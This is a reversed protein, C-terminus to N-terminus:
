FRQVGDPGPAKRNSIKKLIKKLKEQQGNMDKKIKRLWTADKNHEEQGWIDTWFIKAEQADPLVNPTEERGESGDIQKYFRGESNRFLRNQQFQSVRQHCRNIKATKGKIKQLIEEKVKPKGKEKLKYRKQLNDQHKKKM